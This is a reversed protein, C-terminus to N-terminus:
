SINGYTEPKKLDDEPIEGDFLMYLVFILKLQSFVKARLTTSTVFNKNAIHASFREQNEGPAWLRSTM